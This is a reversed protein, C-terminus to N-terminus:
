MISLQPLASRKSFSILALYSSPLCSVFQFGIFFSAVNSSM